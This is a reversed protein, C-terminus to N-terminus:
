NNHADRIPKELRDRDRKSIQIWKGQGISELTKKPFSRLFEKSPFFTGLKKLYNNMDEETTYKSRVINKLQDLFPLSIKKNFNCKVIYVSESGIRSWSDGVKNLLDKLIDPHNQRSNTVKGTRYIESAYLITVLHELCQQETNLANKSSKSVSTKFYVDSVTDDRSPLIQLSPDDKDIDWSEHQEMTGEKMLNIKDIDFRFPRQSTVHNIEANSSGNDNSGHNDETTETELRKWDESVLTSTAKSADFGHFDNLQDILSLVIKELMQQIIKAIKDAYDDGYSNLGDIATPVDSHLQGIFNISKEILQDLDKSDSIAADTFVLRKNIDRDIDSKEKVSNLNGNGYRCPDVKEKDVDNYFTPKNLARQIVSLISEQIIGHHKLLRSPAVRLLESLKNVPGIKEGCCSCHLSCMLNGNGELRRVEISTMQYLECLIGMIMNEQPRSINHTIFSMPFRTFSRLDEGKWKKSLLGKTLYLWNDDKQRNNVLVDVLKEVGKTNIYFPTRQFDLSVTTDRVFYRSLSSDVSDPYLADITTSENRSLLRAILLLRNLLGSKPCRSYSLVHKVEGIKGEMNSSYEYFLIADIELYQVSSECKPDSLWLSLFALCQVDEHVSENWVDKIGIITEFCLTKLDECNRPSQNLHVYNKQRNTTDVRCLSLADLMDVSDLVSVVNFADLSAGGQLCNNKSRLNKIPLKKELEYTSKRIQTILDNHYYNNNNDVVEMSTAIQDQPITTEIKPSREKDELFSSSANEKSSKLINSLGTISENPPDKFSKLWTENEQRKTVSRANRVPGQGPILLPALSPTDRKKTTPEENLARLLLSFGLALSPYEIRCNIVSNSFLAVKIDAMTQWGMEYEEASSGCTVRVVCEGGLITELFCNNRRIIRSLAPSVVSDLYVGSNKPRENKLTCAAQFQYYPPVIINVTMNKAAELIESESELTTLAWIRRENYGCKQKSLIPLNRFSNPLQHNQWSPRFPSGDGTVVQFIIHEGKDPNKDHKASTEIMERLRGSELQKPLNNCSDLDWVKGEVKLTTHIHCGGHSNPQALVIFAQNDGDAPIVDAHDKTYLQKLSLNTRKLLKQVTTIGVTKPASDADEKTFLLEDQVESNAVVSNAANIACSGFKRHQRFHSICPTEGDGSHESNNTETSEDGGGRDEKQSESGGKEVTDNTRGNNTTGKTGQKTSAARQIRRSSRTPTNNTATAVPPTKVASNSKLSPTTMKSAQKKDGGKKNVPSDVYNIGDHPDIDEEGVDVQITKRKKSATNSKAKRSKSAQSSVVEKVEVVGDHSGEVVFQNTADQILGSAPNTVTAGEVTKVYVYNMSHLHFMLWQHMYYVNKKPLITPLGLDIYRYRRNHLSCLGTVVGNNTPNGQIEISMQLLLKTIGRKDDELNTLRDHILNGFLVLAKHQKLLQKHLLIGKSKTKWFEALRDSEPNLLFVDRCVRSLFKDGSSSMPQGNTLQMISKVMISYETTIWPLLYQDKANRNQCYRRLVTEFAKVRYFVNETDKALTIIERAVKEDVENVAALVRKNMVPLFIPLDGGDSVDKKISAKLATEAEKFHEAQIHQLWQNYSSRINVEKITEFALRLRLKSIQPRGGPIFENPVYGKIIAHANLAAILCCDVGGTQKPCSSCSDFKFEKASVGELQLLANILDACKRMPGHHDGQMGDYSTLKNTDMNAAILIWHYNDINYPIIITSFSSLRRDHYHHLVCKKMHSGDTGMNKWDYRDDLLYSKMWFWNKGNHTQSNTGNALDNLYCLMVEDNLLKEVNALDKWKDLNISHSVTIDGQGTRKGRSKRTSQKTYIHVNNALPKKKTLSTALSRQKQFIAKEDANLGPSM